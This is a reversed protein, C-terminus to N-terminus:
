LLLRKYFDILVKSEFEWSLERVVRSYGFASMKKREEPNDLLWMVKEAFDTTNTNDAYLSAQQASFRGEKLDYQVIPKQLAMYEMIKNMTSLQNMTTPRDPNVCVDATNLIDVLLEDSVRGYFDVYDGLGMELSLAKLSEVSTGGGVIALQVDKRREVIYKFSELLLDIGEQDGIVGLYGILYTRGKKYVPNGATIKLRDLKPGSRVVTVKAPNMGGRQIAINRYSENTAISADATKFTLKEFFVMLKYFWDKKNFKAEYLEPNIDHHDFVYKVGLLKFPLAILFILDPPNCGQIVHFRKKSYIRIALVLEWFLAAGYEMLYGLAGSAELPLPHRYIEIGDIVERSQTYGKMKPCIISIKAGQEKLTNAEQWVRRDFPVPLNEVVILIHKGLLDNNM